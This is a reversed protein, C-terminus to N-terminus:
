CFNFSFKGLWNSKHMKALMNEFENRKSYLINCCCFYDKTEARSKGNRECAKFIWENMSKDALLTGFQIRMDRVIQSLIMSLDVHTFLIVCIIYPVFFTLWRYCCEYGFLSIFLFLQLIHSCSRWSCLVFDGSCASWCM